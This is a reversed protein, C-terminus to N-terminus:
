SALVNEKCSKMEELCEETTQRNQSSLSYLKDLTACISSYNHVDIYQLPRHSNEYKEVERHVSAANEKIDLALSLLLSFKGSYRRFVDEMKAFDEAVVHTVAGATVSAAATLPLGIATGIGFTFVGAVISAVTGGVIAATTVTGGIARSANKRTNAKAQLKYCREAAAGCKKMATKCDDCFLDYKVGIQQLYKDMLAVFKQLPVMDNKAANKKIESFDTKMCYYFLDDVSDVFKLASNAVSNISDKVDHIQIEKCYSEYKINEVDACIGKLEKKLTEVFEKLSTLVVESGVAKTFADVPDMRNYSVLYIMCMCM